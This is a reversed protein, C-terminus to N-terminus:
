ARAGQRRRSRWEREFEKIDKGYILKSNEEVDRLLRKNIKHFNDLSWVYPHLRKGTITTIQDNINAFKDNVLHEDFPEKFLLFLDIDSQSTEESRIVSGYISAHALQNRLYSSRKIAQKILNEIQLLVRNEAQYLDKLAPYLINQTNLSFAKSKGVQKFTLINSDVLARLQKQVTAQPVKCLRAIHRGTFEGPYKFSTRLIDVRTQNGLIVNLPKTLKM